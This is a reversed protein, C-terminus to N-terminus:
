WVAKKRGYMFEFDYNDMNLLFSSFSYISPWRQILNSYKQCYEADSINRFFQYLEEKVHCEPQKTIKTMEIDPFFFAEGNSIDRLCVNYRNNFVWGNVGHSIPHYMGVSNGEKDKTEEYKCRIVLSDLDLTKLTLNTNTFSYVEVKNHETLNMQDFSIIEAYLVTSDFTNEGNSALIIKVKFQNYRDTHTATNTKVKLKNLTKEIEEISLNMLEYEPRLLESFRRKEQNQFMNSEATLKGNNYYTISIFYFM